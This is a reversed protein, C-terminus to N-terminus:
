RQEKLKLLVNTLSLHGKAIVTTYLISRLYNSGEPQNTASDTGASLCESALMCAVDLVFIM